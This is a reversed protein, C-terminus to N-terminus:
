GIESNMSEYECEPSAFSPDLTQRLRVSTRHSSLGLLNAVEEDTRGAHLHRRAYTNRLLRPSMDAATIELTQLALRVCKGLTDDKM